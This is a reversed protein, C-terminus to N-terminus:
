IENFAQDLNLVPCCGMERCCTACSCKGNKDHQCKGKESIIRYTYGMGVALLEATDRTCLKLM